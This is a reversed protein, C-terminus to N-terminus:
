NFGAEMLFFNTSWSQVQALIEDVLLQCDQSHLRTTILPVGLSKVPLKGEPIHLISLLVLQSEDGVGAFYAASKRM